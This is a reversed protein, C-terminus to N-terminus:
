LVATQVELLRGTRLGGTGPRGTGLGGFQWLGIGRGGVEIGAGDGGDVLECWAGPALPGVGSPRRRGSRGPRRRGPGWAGREGWRVRGYRGLTYSHLMRCTLTHM